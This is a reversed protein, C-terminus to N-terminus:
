LFDELRQSPLTLHTQAENEPHLEEALTIPTQTSRSIFVKLQQLRCKPCIVQQQPPCNKADEQVKWTVLQMCAIADEISSHGSSHTQIKRNLYQAALGRLSRKFPLGRHHPFLVSTDVVTSHIFKLALLDSQLSHGILITENSFLSLLVAQVDRLRVNTNALDAETVGSFMTNYDVIENDPKVFTDYIVRLYTDVVTVRTLELGHTTYSMECDLAYIGPHAEWDNKPFTKAFGQLNDKRGDQVHQKAVTCGTAGVLENCCSYGGRGAESCGSPSSAGRTSCAPIQASAAALPPCLISLTVAAAPGTHRVRFGTERSSSQPGPSRPIHSHSAM